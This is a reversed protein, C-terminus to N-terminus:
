SIVLEEELLSGTFQIDIDSDSYITGGAHRITISDGKNLMFTGHVSVTSLTYLTANNIGQEPQQNMAGILSVGAAVDAGNRQLYVWGYGAYDSGAGYASAYGEGKFTFAYIGAKPATFVGSALNMGGGLNLYEKEFTMNGAKSWISSRTVFFHVPGDSKVDIFGVRTEFDAETPELAFDCYISAMQDKGRRPRLVDYFGPLTHGLDLLDLCSSPKRSAAKKSSASTKLHSIRSNVDDGAQFVFFTARKPRKKAEKQGKEGTAGLRSDTSPIPLHPGLEQQSNIKVEHSEIKLEHQKVLSVTAEHEAVKAELEAVKAELQNLRNLLADNDFM